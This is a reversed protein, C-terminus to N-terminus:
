HKNRVIYLCRIGTSVINLVRVFITKTRAMVVRKRYATMACSIETRGLGRAVGSWRSSFATGHFPGNLLSKRASLRARRTEMRGEEGERKKRRQERAVSEKRRARERETERWVVALSIRTLDRFEKTLHHHWRVGAANDARKYKDKKETGM